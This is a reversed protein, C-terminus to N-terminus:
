TCHLLVPFYGIVARLIVLATFGFVVTALAGAGFTAGAASGTACAAGDASNAGITSGTTSITGSTSAAGAASIAGATSAAGTGSIVRFSTLIFVTAASPTASRTWAMKPSTLSFALSAKSFFARRTSSSVSSVLPLTSASTVEVLTAVL